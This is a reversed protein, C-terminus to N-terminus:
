RDLFPPNVVTAPVATGRIDVAVEDGEEVDSRLLALAIGHGTTPSFNGSTVTGLVEESGPGSLVTYGDRPFRRGALSLGRLLRAPGEDRELALPERGRFEDKDWGVVWGLRAQLPTIGEGLEHGHLPYGMELRLTDRAGLGAPAAGADTLAEWLGTAGAAPVHIEVGDEGTYGTGAVVAEHDRWSCRTIGFHGPWAASGLVTTVVESARPGQVALLARTATIDEFDCTGSVRDVADGLASLFPAINAANPLVLFEHDGTWWVIVDDVVHADVPDLAHTYQARGVAVRRLDNSLLWQLADFAGSGGVRVTGLHSVDFVVVDERCRRHEELVSGYDVPMDWGAFDVLKGGLARHMEELPSHHSPASAM